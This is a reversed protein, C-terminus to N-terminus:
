IGSVPHCYVNRPCIIDGSYLELASVASEGDEIDVIVASVRPVFGCQSSVHMVM